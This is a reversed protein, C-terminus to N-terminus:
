PASRTRRFLKRNVDPWFEAFGNGAMRGLFGMATRFLARSATAESDARWTNSLFNNGPIAMYRAYAPMIQGERNRAVFTMEIVHWVRGKFAAGEARTYRPDEGWISGISAEMANSTSVGTLRMGYRQGFGEWNSPYEPPSKFATGWGASFPGAVLLSNVGATSRLFWTLREKGTIPVYKAQAQAPVIPAPDVGKTVTQAPLSVSTILM